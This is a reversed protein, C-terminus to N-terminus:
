DFVVMYRGYMKENNLFLIVNEGKTLVLGNSTFECVHRYM